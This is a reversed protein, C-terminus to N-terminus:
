AAHALQKKFEGHRCDRYSWALVHYPYRHRYNRRCRRSYLYTQRHTDKVFTSSDNRRRHLTRYRDRSIECLEFDACICIYQIERRLAIRYVFAFPMIVPLYTHYHRSLCTQSARRSTGHREPKPSSLSIIVDSRADAKRTAAERIQRRTCCSLKTFRLQFNNLIPPLVNRARALNFDDSSVIM